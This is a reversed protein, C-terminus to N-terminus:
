NMVKKVLAWKTIIRNKISYEITHWAWLPLQLGKPHYIGKNDMEKVLWDYARHFENSSNYWESKNTDCTFVGKEKIIDLTSKPQITWLIM